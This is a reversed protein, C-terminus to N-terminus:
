SCMSRKWQKVFWSLLSCRRYWNGSASWARAKGMNYGDIRFDVSVYIGLSREANGGNYRETGSKRSRLKRLGPYAARGIQYRYFLCISWSLSPWVVVLYLTRGWNARVRPLRNITGQGKQESIGPKVTTTDIAKYLAFSKTPRPVQVRWGPCAALPWCCCGPSSSTTRRTTRTPMQRRM